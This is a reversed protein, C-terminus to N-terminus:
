APSKVLQLDLNALGAMLEMKEKGVKIVMKEMMELTM